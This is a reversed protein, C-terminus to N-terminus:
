KLNISKMKEINFYKNDNLSNPLLGKIFAAKLDHIADDINKTPTFGLEEHIKKSSIHYSRIDNTQVIKMKVNTGIITKVKNAIVKVPFNDFGINYIKKNIMNADSTIMLEYAKIMDDIHINPRLQDGGYVTIENKNFALNTLINVVVDLRQRISYGCVTAPRLITTSFNKSSYNLLIKECIAKYKSYDTLPKLELEETVNKEKSIGYVSSSSAYIFKEVGFERSIKVLPEFSDLNISKGLTPNLEFSPDNSICALHIVINHGPLIKKLLNLDRIDGKVVKVNENNEFLRPEYIMLDLITINYDNESLYKTLMSGVYGGGGTILIRM